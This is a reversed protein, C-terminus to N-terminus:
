GRIAKLFRIVALLKYSPQQPRQRNREQVMDTQGTYLDLCYYGYKYSDSVAPANYYIKGNMIIATGWPSEYDEANMSFVPGSSRRPHRRRPGPNYTDDVTRSRKRASQGMQFSAVLWSGKLWNSALASWGRNAANIPTTWYGTPLPPEQWETLPEQQVTLTAPNSTSGQYFDGIAANTTDAPSAAVTEGPWSFVITYTGVQDPTFVKFDSGVDSGCKWPGLTLKTGDPKTITILFGDWRQGVDGGATPSFRDVWVVITTSQGLGIVNPAASCFATTPVTYPPVHAIAAPLTFLMAAITSVLFLAIMTAITKNKAFKM